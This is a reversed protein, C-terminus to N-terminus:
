KKKTQLACCSNISVYQTSTPTRKCAQNKRKSHPKRIMVTVEKAFEDIVRPFFNSSEFLLCQLRHYAGFISVRRLHHFFHLHSALISLSFHGKALFM